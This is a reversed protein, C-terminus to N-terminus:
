GRGEQGIEILFFTLYTDVLTNIPSPTRAFEVAKRECEFVFDSIDVLTHISNPAKAMMRGNVRSRATWALREAGLAAWLAHHILM